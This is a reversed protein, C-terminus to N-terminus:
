FGGLNNIVGQKFDMYDRVMIGLKDLAQTLSKSSNIREIIEKMSLANDNSIRGSKIDRTYAAVIIFTEDSGYIRDREDDPMAEWFDMVDDDSLGMSKYDYRNQLGELVRKRYKKYGSVKSTEQEKFRELIAKYQAMENRNKFKGTESFRRTGKKNEPRGIAALRAQVAQYAPSQIGRKELELMRQNMTKALKRLENSYVGSAM